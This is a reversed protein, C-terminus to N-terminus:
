FHQRKYVDLHTYSVPETDLEGDDNSQDTIEDEEDDSLKIKQKKKIADGRVLKGKKSSLNKITSM